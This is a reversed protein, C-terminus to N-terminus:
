KVEKVSKYAINLPHGATLLDKQAQVLETVPVFLSKLQKYKDFLDSHYVPYGGVFAQNTRLRGKELSPGVYILHDSEAKPAITVTEETKPKRTTKTEEPKVEEAKDVM